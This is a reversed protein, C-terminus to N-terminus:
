FFLEFFVRQGAKHHSNQNFLIYSQSVPRKLNLMIVNDLYIYTVADNQGHAYIRIKCRM